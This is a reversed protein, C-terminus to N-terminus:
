LQFDNKVKIPYDTVTPIGKEIYCIFSTIM